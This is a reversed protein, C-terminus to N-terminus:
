DSAPLPKSEKLVLLEGALAPVAAGPKTVLLEVTEAADVYRKGLAVGSDHGTQVTGDIRQDASLIAPHGGISFEIPAAPAKVTILETTDVACFIRTGPTLTLPM